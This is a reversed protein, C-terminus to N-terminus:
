FTKHKQFKIHFALLRILIITDPDDEDFKNDLNINNLNVSLIGMEDCCFTVDASDENFYLISEDSYLATYLKKIMKNTVSWDPILKLAALSDDVAEDYMRQTVYKDFRFLLLILSPDESVVREPMEQTKYWDPISDFVIKYSDLLRITNLLM